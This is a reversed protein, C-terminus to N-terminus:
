GVLQQLGDVLLGIAGVLIGVDGLDFFPSRGIRLYDCVWGRVGMEFAHSLASGVLLGITFASSPVLQALALASATGIVAIWRTRAASRRRLNCLIRGRRFQNARISDVRATWHKKLITRKIWQGLVGFGLATVLTLFVPTM